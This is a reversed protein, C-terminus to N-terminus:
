EMAMYTWTGDMFEFRPILEPGATQGPVTVDGKDDFTM